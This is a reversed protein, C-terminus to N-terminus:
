AYVKCNSGACDWHSPLETVSFDFWFWDFVTESREDARPICTRVTKKAHEVFIYTLLYTYEYLAFFLLWLYQHVFIVLTVDIHIQARTTKKKRDTDNKQKHATNDSALHFAVGTRSLSRHCATNCVAALRQAVAVITSASAAVHKWAPKQAWDATTRDTGRPTDVTLRAGRVVGTLLHTSSDSWM